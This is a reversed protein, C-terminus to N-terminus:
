GKKSQQTTGAPKAAATTTTTKPKSASNNPNNNSSLVQENSSRTAKLATAIVKVRTKFKNGSFVITNVHNVFPKCDIDPTSDIKQKWEKCVEQIKKDRRELYGM